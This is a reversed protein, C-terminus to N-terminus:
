AKKMADFVQGDLKAAARVDETQIADVSGSGAVSLSVGPHNRLNSVIRSRADVAFPLTAWDKADIWFNAHVCLAVTEVDFVNVLEFKENQLDAHLQEPIVTILEAM